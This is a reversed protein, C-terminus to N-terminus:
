AMSWGPVCVVLECPVLSTTGEAANCDFASLTVEGVLDQVPSWLSMGASKAHQIIISPLALFAQM